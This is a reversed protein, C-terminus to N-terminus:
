VADLCIRAIFLDVGAAKTHSQRQRKTKHISYM